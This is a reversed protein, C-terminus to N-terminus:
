SRCSEYPLNVQDTSDTENTNEAVLQIAADNETLDGEMSLFDSENTTLDEEFHIEASENTEMSGNPVLNEVITMQRCPTKKHELFTTLDTWSSQCTGCTFTDDEAEQEEVFLLVSEEEVNEGNVSAEEQEIHYEVGDEDQIVVNEKVFSM